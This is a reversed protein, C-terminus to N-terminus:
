FGLQWDSVRNKLFRELKEVSFVSSAVADRKAITLLVRITCVDSEHFGDLYEASGCGVQAPDQFEFFDAGQEQFLPALAPAVQWYYDLRPDSRIARYLAPHFTPMYAVVRIGHASCDLLFHRMEELAPTSLGPPAPHFWPDAQADIDSLQDELLHPVSDLWRQGALFSGDARLGSHQRKANAGILDAPGGSLRNRLGLSVGNRWAFNIIELRSAPAFYDQEPQLTANKRFWWPDVTLIVERPLHNMRELFQRVIGLKDAAILTGNYFARPERAFESRISFGRSSGLVLIDPQRRAVAALKYSPYASKPQYLPYYIAPSAQQREVVEGPSM